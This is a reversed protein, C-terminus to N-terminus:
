LDDRDPRIRFTGVGSKPPEDAKSGKIRELVNQAKAQDVKNRVDVEIKKGEKPQQKGSKRSRAPVEELVAPGNRALAARSVTVGAESLIRRIEEWSDGRKRMAAIEKKFSRVLDSVSRIPRKETRIADRVKKGAEELQETGIEFRRM